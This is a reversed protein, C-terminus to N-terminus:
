KVRPPIAPLRRMKWINNQPKNAISLPTWAITPSPPRALKPADTERNRQHYVLGIGEPRLKSETTSARGNAEAARAPWNLASDEFKHIFWRKIENVAM